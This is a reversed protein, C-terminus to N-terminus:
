FYIELTISGTRILGKAQDLPKCTKGMLYKWNIIPWLFLLLCLERFFASSEEVVSLNFMVLVLEFLDLLKLLVNDLMLDFNVPLVKIILLQQKEQLPMMIFGFLGDSRHILVQLESNVIQRRIKFPSFFKNYCMTRNLFWPEEVGNSSIEVKSGNEDQIGFQHVELVNFSTDNGRDIDM